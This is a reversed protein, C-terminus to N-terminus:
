DAGTKDEEPLVSPDLSGKRKRSPPNEKEGRAFEIWSEKQLLGAHIFGLPNELINRVLYM